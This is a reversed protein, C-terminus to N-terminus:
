EFYRFYFLVFFSFLIDVPFLADTFYALDTPSKLAFHLILNLATLGLYAYAAWKRMDCIFLWSVAYALLWIPQLWIPSSLPESSYDYISYLLLGIHFLAVLPFLVPPKKIFRQIFSM